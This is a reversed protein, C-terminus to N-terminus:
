QPFFIFYFTHKTYELSTYPFIGKDPM